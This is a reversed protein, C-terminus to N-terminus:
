FGGGLTKYLAVRRIALEANARAVQQGLQLQQRQLPLWEQMPILGAQYRAQALRVQEAQADLQRQLGARTAETARYSALADEVEAFAQLMTQHYQFVAEREQAQVGRLNSLKAGGEFLGQVAQATFSALVSNWDFWQNLQTSALGWQGALSFSPFFQRRAVRVNLHAAELEAEAAQLDPRRLLLESPMGVPLAEPLHVSALPSVTLWGALQPPTQGALVALAHRALAQQEDLSAQQVTLEAQIQQLRELTDATDLGSAYRARQLTLEEQLVAQQDALLSRQAEVQQLQFYRQAAETTLMLVTSKELWQQAETLTQLRRTALRNKWFIDVDYAVRIAANFISFTSGPAFIRPGAGQFQSPDPATLNRPNKQRTWATTLEATPLEQAFGQQALARAQTIRSAAIGLQPSGELVAHIVRTLNPDDYTEWWDADPFTQSIRAQLLPSELWQEPSAPAQPLPDPKQFLWRFAHSEPPSLPGLLLGVVVLTIAVLRRYHTQRM